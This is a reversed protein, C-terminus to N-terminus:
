GGDKRCKGDQLGAAVPDRVDAGRRDLGATRARESGARCIRVPRAEATRPFLDSRVIEGPGRLQKDACLTLEPFSRALVRKLINQYAARGKRRASVTRADRERCIELRTPRAQGIKQVTVRLSEGKSEVDLVRRVVNREESWLHLLCRNSEGSVSYKANGLDFMVAGDEIVVAGSSDSLFGELEAALTERTM